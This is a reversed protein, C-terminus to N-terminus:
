SFYFNWPFILNDFNEGFIPLDLRELELQWIQISARFVDLFCFIIMALM